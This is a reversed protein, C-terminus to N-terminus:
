FRGTFRFRTAPHWMTTVSAVSGPANTRRRIVLAPESANMRLWSAVDAPPTAAEISFRVEALPVERLLYASPTEAAFDAALYQPAVEPNVYRDEVQIPEGNEFHLLVSHFLAAGAPRAFADALMDDAQCRGLHLMQNSYVHGRERVDDDISRITMLTAEYKRWAVYTGSGQVRVVAGEQQLERMARNVTMRSVGFQKALAMESPVAAGEGLAGSRIQRMVWAKIRQYAPGSELPEEDDFVFRNRDPGNPGKPGSSFLIM